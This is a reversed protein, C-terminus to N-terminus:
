TNNIINFFNGGTYTILDILSYVYELKYNKDFVSLEQRVIFVDDNIKPNTIINEKNSNKVIPKNIFDPSMLGQGIFSFRTTTINNEILDIFKIDNIYYIIKQNPISGIYDVGNSNIDINYYQKLFDNTITYKRLENLRSPCNGEVTYSSTDITTGMVSGISHATGLGSSNLSLEGNTVLKFTNINNENVSIYNFEGSVEYADFFGIDDVEQLISFKINYNVNIDPIIKYCNICDTTRGTTMIRYLTKKLVEM